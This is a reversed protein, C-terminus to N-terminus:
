IAVGEECMLELVKNREQINIVSRINFTRSGFVVRHKALIGSRYRMRIRHTVADELQMYRFQEYGRLPEISAQADCIKTPSAWPDARGGGADVSPNPAQITIKHRLRGAYITRKGAINRNSPM